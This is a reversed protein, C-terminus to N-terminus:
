KFSKALKSEFDRLFIMRMQDILNGKSHNKLPKVEEIVFSVGGTATFYDESWNSTGILGAKDTVMMKSHSGHFGQVGLSQFNFDFCPDLM